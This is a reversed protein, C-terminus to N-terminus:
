NPTEPKGRVPLLLAGADWVASSSLEEEVVGLCTEFCERWGQMYGRAFEDAMEQRLRHERQMEFVEAREIPPAGFALRFRYACERLLRFLWRLAAPCYVGVRRRPEYWALRWGRPIMGGHGVEKRFWLTRTTM